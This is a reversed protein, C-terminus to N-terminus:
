PAAEGARGAVSALHEALSAQVRAVDGGQWEPAPPVEGWVAGADFVLVVDWVVGGSPRVGVRQLEASVRRQPDWWQTVRPDPVRAMTGSSPPRVDRPLVPEWVVFVDLEGPSKSLVSQLASAGQM